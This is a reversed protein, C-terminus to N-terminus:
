MRNELLNTYFNTWVFVQRKIEAWINVFRYYKPYIRAAYKVSSIFYMTVAETRTLVITGKQAVSARVIAFSSRNLSDTCLARVKESLGLHSFLCTSIPHVSLSSLNLFSARLRWQLKVSSHRSIKVPTYFFM